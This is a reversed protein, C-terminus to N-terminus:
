SSRRRRNRRRVGLTALAAMALPCAPEPLVAVWGEANGAPDTGFGVVTSGDESIATAENLHWGTLDVGRATLYLRLNQLGGLPDWVFAEDLTSSFSERGVIISGNGSIGNAVSTFPGPSDTLPHIGSADWRVAEGNSARGSSSFGVTV